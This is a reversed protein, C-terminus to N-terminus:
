YWERWKWTGPHMKQASGHVSLLAMPYLASFIIKRICRGEDVQLYCCSTIQIPNSVFTAIVFLSLVKTTSFDSNCLIRESTCVTAWATRAFSSRCSYITHHGVDCENLAAVVSNCNGHFTLIRCLVFETTASCQLQKPVTSDGRIRHM